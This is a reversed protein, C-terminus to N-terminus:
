HAMGAAPAGSTLRARAAALAFVFLAAYAVAPVLFAAHLGVRDAVFGAGLPLVAGGVIAM